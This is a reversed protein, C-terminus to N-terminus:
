RGIHIFPVWSLFGAGSERLNKVAEHLARAAELRNPKGDRFMRKYVDEAVQPADDDKISWMTAIVGRYGALLMGAALHASEETVTEDGMATECASLFAFEAKPLSERVITSLLLSGDELLLGSEMAKGVCQKGHCALHVWHSEKMERLVNAITAKEKPLNVISTNPVIRQIRRVEEETNPITSAGPASPQSVTLMKFYTPATPESSELISSLTPCYSSIVYDSLKHGLESEDYLGAAHIPLFAL